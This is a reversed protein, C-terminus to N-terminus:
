QNAAPPVPDNGGTSWPNCRIIRKFTLWSGKLAGHRQLAQIGYASCTPTFRCHGPVFRSINAQYFRVLWILFRTPLNFKKQTTGAGPSLDPQLVVTGGDTKQGAADAALQRILRAEHAEQESISVEFIGTFVVAAFLAFLVAMMTRRNKLASPGTQTRPPVPDYGSGGFPNCRLIRKFALWSGKVAGHVRLAELAYASCTPTYRCCGPKLPSLFKRYFVVLGTLARAALSPRDQEQHGDNQGSAPNQQTEM